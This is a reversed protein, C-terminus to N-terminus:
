GAVSRAIVSQENKTSGASSNPSRTRPHNGIAMWRSSPSKKPIRLVWATMPSRSRSVASPESVAPRICSSFLGAVAATRAAVASRSRTAPMRWLSPMSALPRISGLWSRARAWNCSDMM